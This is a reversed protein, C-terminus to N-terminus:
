RELDEFDWSESSPNCSGFVLDWRSMESPSLAGSRLSLAEISRRAPFCDWDQHPISRLARLKDSYLYPALINHLSSSREANWFDMMDRILKLANAWSQTSIRWNTPFPRARVMLEIRGLIEFIRWIANFVLYDFYSENTGSKNRYETSTFYGGILQISKTDVILKVTRQGIYGVSQLTDLLSIGSPNYHAIWQIPRWVCFMAISNWWGKRLGIMDWYCCSIRNDYIRKCPGSRLEGNQMWFELMTNIPSFTRKTYKWWPKIISFQTDFYM